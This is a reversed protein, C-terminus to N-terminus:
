REVATSASPVSHSGTAPRAVSRAIAAPVSGPRAAAACFASFCQPQRYALGTLRARRDESINERRPQAVPKLIPVSVSRPAPVPAPRSRALVDVRGLM